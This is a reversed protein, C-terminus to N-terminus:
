NGSDYSGKLLPVHVSTFGTLTLHLCSLFTIRGNLERHKAYDLKEHRESEHLQPCDLVANLYSTQFISLLQTISLTM